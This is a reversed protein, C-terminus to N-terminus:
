SKWRGEIWERVVSVTMSPDWLATALARKFKNM